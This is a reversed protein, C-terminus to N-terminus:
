MYFMEQKADIGRNSFKIPRKKTLVSIAREARKKLLWVDTMLELTKVFDGMDASVEALGSKKLRLIYGGPNDLSMTTLCCGGHLYGVVELERMVDHEWRCHDCLQYFMDALMKPLKLNGEHHWKTGEMYFTRGVESAGLELKRGQSNRRIIMDGKHGQSKRTRNQARYTQRQKERREASAVSSSEGRIVSFDVLDGFAKDVLAGWLHIDYWLENHDCNFVQPRMEYLKVLSEIGYAITDAEYDKQANYKSGRRPALTELVSRLEQTSCCNFSKLVGMTDDSLPIPKKLNHELLEAAEEETFVGMIYPDRVNLIFSHILNECALGVGAEYMIDEVYRGTSLEWKNEKDMNEFKTKFEETRNSDLVRGIRGQLLTQSLHGSPGAETDDGFFADIEDGKKKCLKKSTKEGQYEVENNIEGDDMTDAARKVSQVAKMRHEVFSVEEEIVIEQALIAARQEKLKLWYDECSRTKLAKTGYGM